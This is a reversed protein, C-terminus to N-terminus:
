HEQYIPYHRRVLREERSDKASLRTLRPKTSPTNGGLRECLLTLSAPTLMNRHTPPSVGLYDSLGRIGYVYDSPSTTEPENKEKRDIDTDVGIAKLVARKIADDFMLTDDGSAVMLLAIGILALAQNTQENKM